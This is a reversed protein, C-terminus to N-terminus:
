LEIRMVRDNNHKDFVRIAIYRVGEKVMFLFLEQKEDFLGDAAIAIRWEFDDTNDNLPVKYFVAPITSLEDSAIGSISISDGVVKKKIGKIEPSSHDVIFQVIDTDTLPNPQDTIDTTIIKVMYVGDPYPRTDLFYADDKIKPGIRKFEDGERRLYLDSLLRDGDPDMAQWYICRIGKPLQYSQEPIFFGMKRLKTQKEPSLFERHQPGSTGGGCGVGPPLVAFLTIEPSSNRERYSIRVEKLYTKEGKLDAKWQIFPDEVEIGKKISKWNIWSSDVEEKKGSRIFFSIDGNGEYFLNGWVVGIGGNFISSTYSGKKNKEKKIRYINPPYGTGIYLVDGLNRLATIRSEELDAVILFNRRHFEGIQGDEAEGAYFRGEMEVGCLISTGKYSTFERNNILFKVEGDPESNALSIGSVCLTDGCFGLGNVEDLGTDYFIRGEGDPYLEYVLGPDSTAVFLRDSHITMRTVSAGQTKYFKEIKNDKAIKYIKGEPGTGVLLDGEWELISYINDSDISISDVIEKGKISLLKGGPSLGAIILNGRKGLKILRGDTDMITDITGKSLRIIFGTESVGYYIGDKGDIIDSIFGDGDTTLKEIRNGIFISDSSIITGEVRGKYLSDGSYTWFYSFSLLFFLM